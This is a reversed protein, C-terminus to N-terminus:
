MFHDCVDLFDLSGLLWNMSEGTLFGSRVVPSFGSLDLVLWPDCLYNAASTSNCGPSREGLRSDREAKDGGAADQASFLRYLFGSLDCAPIPCLHLHWERGPDRIGDRHLQFDLIYEKTSM